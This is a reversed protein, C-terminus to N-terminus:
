KASSADTAEVKSSVSGREFKAVGKELGIYAGYGELAQGKEVSVTRKEDLRIWVKNGSATVVAPGAAARASPKASTEGSPQSNSTASPAAFSQPGEAQSVPVPPVSAPLQPPLGFSPMVPPLTPARANATFLPTADKRRNPASRRVTPEKDTLASPATSAASPAPPLVPKAVNVPPSAPVVVHAPAAGIKEVSPAAVATPAPTATKPVVPAPTVAPQVPTAVIARTAPLDPVVVSVPVAISKAVLTTAAPVAVVPVAVPKVEAPRIALAAPTVAATSVTPPFAPASTSVPASTAAAKSAPLESAMTIPTKVAPAKPPTPRSDAVQPPRMAAFPTPGKRHASSDSGPLLVSAVSLVGFLVIAGGVAYPFVESYQTKPAMTKPSPIVTASM